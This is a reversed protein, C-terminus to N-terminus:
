HCPACGEIKGAPFVVLFHFSCSPPTAFSPQHRLFFFPFFFTPIIGAKRHQEGCNNYKVTGGQSTSRSLYMCYLMLGLIISFGLAALTLLLSTSDNCPTMTGTHKITMSLFYVTSVSEERRRTTRRWRWGRNHNLSRPCQPLQPFTESTFAFLAYGM